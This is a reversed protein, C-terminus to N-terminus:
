KDVYNKLKEELEKLDKKMKENDQLLTEVKSKLNDYPKKIEKIYKWAGGIASIAAAIALLVGWFISLNEM